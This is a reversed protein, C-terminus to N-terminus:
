SNHSERLSIRKAAFICALLGLTLSSLTVGLRSYQGLLPLSSSPSSSLSSSSSSTPTPLSSPVNNDGDNSSSTIDETFRPHPQFRQKDGRGEEDNGFATVKNRREDANGANMMLTDHNEDAWTRSAIKGQSRSTAVRRTSLGVNALKQMVTTHPDSLVDVTNLVPVLVEVFRSNKMSLFPVIAALLVFCLSVFALGTGIYLIRLFASAGSLNGSISNVDIARQIQLRLDAAQIVDNSSSSASSSRLICASGFITISTKDKDTSCPLCKNISDAGKQPSFFGLKCPLCHVSGPKAAFSGAPCPLCPLIALSSKSPDLFTM